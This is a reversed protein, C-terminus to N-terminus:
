PRRPGNVAQVGDKHAHATIAAIDFVDLGPNSPTEFFV